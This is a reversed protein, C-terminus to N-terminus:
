LYDIDSVKASYSLGLSEISLQRELKSVIPTFEMSTDPTSYSTDLPQDLLTTSNPMFFRLKSQDSESPSQFSSPFSDQLKSLNPARYAYQEQDRFEKPAFEDDHHNSFSHQPSTIFDSNESFPNGFESHQSSQYGTADFEQSPYQNSPQPFNQSSNPSKGNFNPFDYYFSDSGFNTDKKESIHSNKSIGGLNEIRKEAYNVGGTKRNESEEKQELVIPNTVDNNVRVSQQLSYNMENDLFSKQFTYSVLDNEKKVILERLIYTYDPNSEAKFGTQDNSNQRFNSNNFQFRAGGNPVFESSFDATNNNMEESQCNTKPSVNSQSETADFSTDKEICFDVPCTANLDCQPLNFDDESDFTGSQPMPTDQDDAFRVRKKVGKHTDTISHERKPKFSSFQEKELFSFLDEQTSSSVRYKSQNGPNFSDQSSKYMDSVSWDYESM